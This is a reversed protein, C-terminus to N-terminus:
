QKNETKEPRLNQFYIGLAQLDEDTLPPNSQKLINPMTSANTREGSLFAALQNKIYVRDQGALNPFATSVPLLNPGSTHCGICGLSKALDQGKELLLDLNEIKEVSIPNAVPPPRSNFFSIVAEQSENSLSSAIGNMAGSTSDKRKGERFHNLQENLYSASQGALHPFGSVSSLGQEGHCGVCQQLAAIPGPPAAPAPPAVTTVESAPDPIGAGGNGTVTGDTSPQGAASSSDPSPAASQKPNSVSLAWQHILEREEDKLAAAEPSGPPPMNKLVAIRQALKGSKAATVAVQEDGWNALGNGIHCRGCNKVFLPKVESYQIKLGDAGEGTQTGSKTTGNQAKPDLAQHPGRRTCQISFVLIAFLLLFSPTSRMSFMIIRRCM